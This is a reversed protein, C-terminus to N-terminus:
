NKLRHWSSRKVAYACLLIINCEVIFGFGGNNMYKYGGGFRRLMTRSELNMMVVFYM